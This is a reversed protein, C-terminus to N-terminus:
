FSGCSGKLNSALFQSVKHGSLGHGDFVALLPLDPDDHLDTDIFYADQNTKPKGESRGAISSVGVASFVRTSAVQTVGNHTTPSLDKTKKIVPERQKDREVSRAKLGSRLAAKPPM